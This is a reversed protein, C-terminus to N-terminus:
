NSAFRSHQAENDLHYDFKILHRLHGSQRLSDPPSLPRRILDDLQNTLGSGHLFHCCKQQPGVLSAVHNSYKRRGALKRECWLWDASTIPRPHHQTFNFFRRRMQIYKYIKFCVRYIYIFTSLPLHLRLFLLPLFGAVPEDAAPCLLSNCNRRCESSVLRVPSMIVARACM